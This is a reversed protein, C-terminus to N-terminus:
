LYGKFSNFINNKSFSDDKYIYIAFEFPMYDNRVTIRRSLSKGFKFIMTPDCHFSGEQQYDVYTSIFDSTIGKSCLQFMKTLMAEIFEINRGSRLSINFVGSAVVYDWSDDVSDKLIDLLRFDIQPHIKQALSIFDPVIDIGTYKVGPYYDRLYDYLDGFGCGVDLVSSSSSIGIESLIKFRLKQRGKLWFLSRSDKGYKKFQKQYKNIIEQKDKDTWM